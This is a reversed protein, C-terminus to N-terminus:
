VEILGNEKRFEIDISKDGTINEVLCSWYLWRYKFNGTDSSKIVRFTDMRNNVGDRLDPFQTGILTNHPVVLLDGEVIMFHKFEKYVIARSFTVTTQNPVDVGWRTLSIEAPTPVFRGKIKIGGKYTPDADEEWIEDKNAQNRNRKYITVWAGSINIIEESLREAYAIDPNDHNYVSLLSNLRDNEDRHDPLMDITMFKQQFNFDYVGM